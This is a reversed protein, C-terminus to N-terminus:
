CRPGPEGSRPPRSSLSLVGGYFGGDVVLVSGGVDQFVLVHRIGYAMGLARHDPDLRDADLAAVGEVAKAPRQDLM